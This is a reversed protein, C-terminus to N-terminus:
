LGTSVVIHSYVYFFEYMTRRRDDNDGGKIIGGIEPKSGGRRDVKNYETKMKKKWTTGDKHNM